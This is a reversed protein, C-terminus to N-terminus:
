IILSLGLSVTTFAWGDMQILVFFSHFAVNVITLYYSLGAMIIAAALAVLAYKKRKLIPITIEKIM